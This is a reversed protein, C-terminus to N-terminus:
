LATDFSEQLSLNVWVVGPVFYNTVVYYRTASFICGNM